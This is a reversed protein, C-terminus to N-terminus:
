GRQIPNNILPFKSYKKLLQILMQNPIDSTGKKSRRPHILPM